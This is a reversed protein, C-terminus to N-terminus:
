KKRGKSEPSKGSVQDYNAQSNAAVARMLQVLRGAEETVADVAVLYLEEEHQRQREQKRLEAELSNLMLYPM